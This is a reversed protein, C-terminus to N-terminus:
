GDSCIINSSAVVLWWGSSGGTRVCVFSSLVLLHRWTTLKKLGVMDNKSDVKRVTTLTGGVRLLRRVVSTAATSLSSNRYTDRQM